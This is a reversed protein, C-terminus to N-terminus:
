LRHYAPRDLSYLAVLAYLKGCVTPANEFLRHFAETPNQSGMYVVSFAWAYESPAARCYIHSTTFATSNMLIKFAKEITGAEIKGAMYGTFEQGPSNGQQATTSSAALLLVAFVTFAKLLSTAPKM